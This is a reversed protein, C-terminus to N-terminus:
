AARGFLPVNTNFFGNFGDSYASEAYDSGLAGASVVCSGGYSGFSWLFIKGTSDATVNLGWKMNGYNGDSFAPGDDDPSGCALRAFPVPNNFGDVITVNIPNLTTQQGAPFQANWVTDATLDPAQLPYIHIGWSPTSGRVWMQYGKGRHLGAVSYFGSADTKTSAWTVTNPSSFNVKAFSCPTGDGYTLRGSVKIGKEMEYAIPPSVASLRQFGMFANLLGWSTTMTISTRYYTDRVDMRFNGSADTKTRAIFGTGSVGTLEASPVPSNDEYFYVNGRWPWPAPYTKDFMHEFTRSVNFPSPVPSYPSSWLFSESITFGEAEYSVTFSFRDMINMGGSEAQFLYLIYEGNANTVTTGGSLWFAYSDEILGFFVNNTFATLRLGVIPTGSDFIFRGRVIQNMKRVSISIPLEKRIDHNGVCDSYRVPQLHVGAFWNYSPLKTTSVALQMFSFRGDAATKFSVVSYGKAPDLESGTFLETMNGIVGGSYPAANSEVGDLFTGSLKYAPVLFNVVRNRTYGVPEPDPFYVAFNEATQSDLGAANAIGAPYYKIGLNHKGAGM